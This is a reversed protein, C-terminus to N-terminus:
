AAPPAVPGAAPRAPEPPWRGRGSAPRFQGSSPPVRGVGRAPAAAEPRRGRKETRQNGRFDGAIWEMAELRRAQFAKLRDITSGRYGTYPDDKGDPPEDLDGWAAYAYELPIMSGFRARGTYWSSKDGEPELKRWQDFLFARFIKSRLLDLSLLFPFKM